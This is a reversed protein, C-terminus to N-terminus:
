PIINRIRVCIKRETRLFAILLPNRMCRPEEYLCEYFKNFTIAFPSFALTVSTHLFVGSFLYSNDEGLTVPSGSRSPNHDTMQSLGKWELLTPDNVRQCPKHPAALRGFTVHMIETPCIKEQFLAASLCVLVMSGQQCLTYSLFHTTAMPLYRRRVIGASVGGTTGLFPYLPSQYTGCFNKRSRRNARPCESLIWVFYNLIHYERSQGPSVRTVESSGLYHENTFAGLTGVDVLPVFINECLSVTAFLVSYLVITIHSGPVNKSNIRAGQASVM